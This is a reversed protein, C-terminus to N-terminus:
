NNWEDGLRASSSFFRLIKIKLHDGFTNWEDTVTFNISNKKWISTKGATLHRCLNRSFQPFFLLNINWVLPNCLVDFFQLRFLCNKENLNHSRNLSGVTQRKMAREILKKQAKFKARLIKILMLGWKIPANMWNRHSCDCFIIKKDQDWTLLRKHHRQSSIAASSRM